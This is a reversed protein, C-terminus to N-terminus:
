GIGFRQCYTQWWGARQPQNVRIADQLERMTHKDPDEIFEVGMKFARLEGSHFLDFWIPRANARYQELNPPLCIRLELM